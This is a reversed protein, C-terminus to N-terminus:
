MAEMLMARMYDKLMAMTLVLQQEMLLEKAMVM